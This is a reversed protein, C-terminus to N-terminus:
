LASLRVIGIRVNRSTEVEIAAEERRDLVSHKEM